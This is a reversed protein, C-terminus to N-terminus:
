QGCHLNPLESRVTQIWGRLLSSQDECLDVKNSGCADSASGLRIVENATSLEAYPEVMVQACAEATSKGGRCVSSKAFIAHVEEVLETTLCYTNLANTVEDNEALVSSGADLSYHKKTKVYFKHSGKQIESDQDVSFKFNLVQLDTLSQSVVVDKSNQSTEATFQKQSCNQYSFMLTIVLFVVATIKMKM